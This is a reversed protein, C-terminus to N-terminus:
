IFLKINEIIRHYKNQKQLLVDERRLKDEPLYDFLLEWIMPRLESPVFKRTYM